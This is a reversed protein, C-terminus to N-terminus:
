WTGGAFMDTTPAAAQELSLEFLVMAKKVDITPGKIATVLFSGAHKPKGGTNSEPGFQFVYTQAPKLKQIHSSVNTVDYAFKVTAKTDILGGAREIHTSAAGATIDVSEGDSEISVETLYASIDVADVTVYFDNGNLTAM